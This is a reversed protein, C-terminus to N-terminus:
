APASRSQRKVLDGAAEPWRPFRFTFGAGLLRGPVVRRSKLILETETRLFFTGIELMWAPVPISIRRGLLRSLVALFEQNPLPHPACLNIAGSLDERAILFKVAEVFDHEHIWSVFQRGDGFRGFGMRCHRVLISFVTGKAPSMVMAIRLAVKRTHPTPAAALTAEWARGIDVSRGWLAPTGPPDGMVGTAEDNPADYRHGYITATAAQLWVRPPNKAKAIAEGVVRTSAVRSDLMEALNRENYRCDVTRGALNIVVDAGDVEVAWPGLTRGDWVVHRVNKVAIRARRSLVVCEHGDAALANALLHGLFGSGGPLVIKM